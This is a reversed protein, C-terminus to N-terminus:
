ILMQNSESVSSFCVRVMDKGIYTRILDDLGKGWSKIKINLDHLIARPTDM